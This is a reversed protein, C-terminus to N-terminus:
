PFLAVAALLFPISLWVLSANGALLYALSLPVLFAFLWALNVIALSYLEEWTDKLTQWFVGMAERIMM